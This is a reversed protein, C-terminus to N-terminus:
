RQPLIVRRRPVRPAKSQITTRPEPAPAGSIQQSAAPAAQAAPVPLPNETAELLGIRETRGSKSVAVTLESPDYSRVTIGGRTENMRIWYSKQDRKDFLSFQYEPGFKVVGRFEIERAIVGPPAQPQAPEAPGQQNYGPPLFPSKSSLSEAATAGSLLLAPVALALLAARRRARGHQRRTGM